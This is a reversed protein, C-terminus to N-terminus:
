KVKACANPEPKEIVNSTRNLNLRIVQLKLYIYTKKITIITFM